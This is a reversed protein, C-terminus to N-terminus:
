SCTLVPGGTVTDPRAADARGSYTIAERRLTASRYGDRTTVDAGSRRLADFTPAWALRNGLVVGDPVEDVAMRWGIVITEEAPKTTRMSLGSWRHDVVSIPARSGPSECLQVRGVEGDGLRATLIPEVVSLRARGLPRGAVTDGTLVISGPATPSGGGTPTGAGPTATPPATSATASPASTTVSPAIPPTGPTTPAATETCAVLTVLGACALAAIPTRM